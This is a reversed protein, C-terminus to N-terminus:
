KSTKKWRRILIEDEEIKIDKEVIEDVYSQMEDRLEANEAQLEEVQDIASQRFTPTM